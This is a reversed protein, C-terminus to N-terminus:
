LEEHTIECESEIRVEYPTADGSFQRRWNKVVIMTGEETRFTAYVQSTCDEGLNNQWRACPVKM